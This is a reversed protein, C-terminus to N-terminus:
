KDGVNALAYSIQLPTGDVTYDLIKWIKRLSQKGLSVIQM